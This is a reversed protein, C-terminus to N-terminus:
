DKPSVNERFKRGFYPRFKRHRLGLCFLFCLRNYHSLIIKRMPKPDKVATGGFDKGLDLSNQPLANKVATCQVMLKKFTRHKGSRRVQFHYRFFIVNKGSM